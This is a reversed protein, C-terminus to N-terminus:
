NLIWCGGETVWRGEGGERVEHRGCCLSWLHSSEYCTLFVCLETCVCWECQPLREWGRELWSAVRSCERSREKMREWSLAEKERGSQIFRNLSVGLPLQPLMWGVGVGAKETETGLTYFSSPPLPLLVWTLWHLELEVQRGLVSPLLRSCFLVGRRRCSKVNSVEQIDPNCSATSFIHSHLTLYLFWWCHVAKAFVWIPNNIQRDKEVSQEEVQSCLLYPDAQDLESGPGRPGSVRLSKCPHSKPFVSQAAASKIWGAPEAPHFCQLHPSGEATLSRVASM